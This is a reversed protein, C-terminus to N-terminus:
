AACAWRRTTCRAQAAGLLALRLAVKGQMAMEVGGDVAEHVGRAVATQDHDHERQGRVVQDELDNAVAEALRLGASAGVDHLAILEHETVVAGAAQDVRLFEPTQAQRAGAEHRREGLLQQAIRALAAADLALIQDDLVAVDLPAQPREIQKQALGVRGRRLRRDDVVAIRQAFRAALM